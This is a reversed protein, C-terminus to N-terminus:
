PWSKAIDTRDSSGITPKKRIKWRKSSSPALVVPNFPHYFADPIGARFAAREGGSLLSAIFCIRGIITSEKEGAIALPPFSTSV